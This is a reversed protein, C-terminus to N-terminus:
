KWRVAGWSWRTERPHRSRWYRPQRWRKAPLMERRSAARWSGFRCCRSGPMEPFYADTSSRALASAGSDPLRGPASASITVRAPEDSNWASNKVCRRSLLQFARSQNALALSRAKGLGVVVVEAGHEASGHELVLLREEEEGNLIRRHLVASQFSHGDGRQRRPSVSERQHLLNQVDKGQGGSRVQSVALGGGAAARFSRM